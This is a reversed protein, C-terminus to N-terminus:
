QRRQKGVIAQVSPKNPAVVGNENFYRDYFNLRKGTGRSRKSKNFRLFDKEAVIPYGHRVLPAVMALYERFLFELPHTGLANEASEIEQKGAIGQLYELTMPNPANIQFLNGLSLMCVEKGLPCELVMVPGLRLGPEIERIEQFKIRFNKGEVGHRLREGTEVLERTCEM